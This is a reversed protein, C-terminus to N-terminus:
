ATLINNIVPNRNEEIEICIVDTFKDEDKVRFPIWALERDYVADDMVGDFFHTFTCIYYKQWNDNTLLESASIFEAYERSVKERKCVYLNANFPIKITNFWFGKISLVKSQEIHINKVQHFCNDSCLIMDFNTLNCLQKRGSKTLTVCDNSYKYITM